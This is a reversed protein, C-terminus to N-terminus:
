ETEQPEEWDKVVHVRCVSITGDLWEVHKNKELNESIM